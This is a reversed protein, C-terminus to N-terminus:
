IDITMDTGIVSRTLKLQTKKLIAVSARRGLLKTVNLVTKVNLLVVIRFNNIKDLLCGLPLSYSLSIVSIYLLIFIVICTLFHCKTNAM